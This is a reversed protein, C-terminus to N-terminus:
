DSSIVFAEGGASNHLVTYRKGNKILTGVGGRQAVGLTDFFAARVATSNRASSTTVACEFSHSSAVNLQLSEDTATRSGLFANPGFAVFTFGAKKASSRIAAVNPAGALCHTMFTKISPTSAVSVTAKTSPQQATGIDPTSIQTGQNQGDHTPSCGAMLALALGCKLVTTKMVFGKQVM